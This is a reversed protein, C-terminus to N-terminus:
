DETGGAYVWYTQKGFQYARYISTNSLHAPNYRKTKHLNKVTLRYQQSGHKAIRKGPVGTVKKAYYYRRTNGTQTFKTIKASATPRYIGTRDRRHKVTTAFSELYGDTTVTIFPATLWTQGVQKQFAPAEGNQQLMYAPRTTPTLYRGVNNVASFQSYGGGNLKTPWANATKLRANLTVFDITALQRVPASTQYLSGWVVTGKPITVRQSSGYYQIRFTQTARYYTHDYQSAQAPQSGALGLLGTTLAILGWKISKLM